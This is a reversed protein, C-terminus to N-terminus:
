GSCNRPLGIPCKELTRDTGYEKKIYDPIYAEFVENFWEYFYGRRRQGDIYRRQSSIGFEALISALRRDSRPKEEFPLDIHPWIASGPLFGGGYAMEEDRFARYCGILVEVKPHDDLGGVTLMEHAAQEIWNYWDGGAAQAIALLHAWVQFGRDNGAFVNPIALSSFTKEIKTMHDQTWRVMKRAISRGLNPDLNLGLQEISESPLRRRMRIFISRDMVTRPVKGISAIIKHGFVDFERLTWGDGAPVNRKVTGGRVYGSNLISVIAQRKDGNLGEAEDILLTPSVEDILRFLVAPTPDIILEPRRILRGAVDLLTSKGEGPFVSQLKLYGIM